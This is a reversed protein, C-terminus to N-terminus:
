AIDNDLMIPSSPIIYMIDASEAALQKPKLAEWQQLTVKTKSMLGLEYEYSLFRSNTEIMGEMEIVVQPLREFVTNMGEDSIGWFGKKVKWPEIVAQPLAKIRDEFLFNAPDFLSSRMLEFVSNEDLSPDKWQFIKALRSLDILDRTQPHLYIIPYDTLLIEIYYETYKKIQSKSERFRRLATSYEGLELYCRIEAIYALYLTLLYEKCTSSQIELERELLDTYAHETELFRNIAQLASAHRNNGEVMSFSNRALDLAARFNAYFSIDIKRDIAELAKQIDQLKREIEKLKAHIAAFGLASVGLPLISNSGVLSMVDSAEISKSIASENQTDSIERLWTVVRGSDDQIVGGNRILTRGALGAAIKPPLDFTIDVPPM